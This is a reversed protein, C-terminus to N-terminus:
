PAVHGSVCCLLENGQGAKRQLLFTQGLQQGKLWPLYKPQHQLLCKCKQQRHRAPEKLLYQGIEGWATTGAGRALATNM